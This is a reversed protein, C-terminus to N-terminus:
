DVNRQPNGHKKPAKEPLTTKKLYEAHKAPDSMKYHVKNPSGLVPECEKVNGEKVLIDMVRKTIPSRGELRALMARSGVIWDVAAGDTAGQDPPIHGEGWAIVDIVGASAKFVNEAFCM